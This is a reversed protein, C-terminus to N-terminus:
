TLIRIKQLLAIAIIFFPVVLFLSQATYRRKSDLSLLEPDLSHKPDNLIGYLALPVYNLGIGLLGLGILLEYGNSARSLVYGGVLIGILSGASFEALILLRNHVAMDLIALKRISILKM